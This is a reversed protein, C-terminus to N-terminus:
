FPGGQLGVPGPSLPVAPRSRRYRCVAWGGLGWCQCVGIGEARRWLDGGRGGAAGDRGRGRRWAGDDEGAGAAAAGLRKRWGGAGQENENWGVMLWGYDGMTGVGLRGAVGGRGSRAVARMSCGRRGAAAWGIGERRGGERRAAPRRTRGAVPGGWPWAAADAVTVAAKRSLRAGDAGGWVSVGM